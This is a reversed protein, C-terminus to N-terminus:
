STVHNIVMMPYVMLTGSETMPKDKKATPVEIGSTKEERMTDLCTFTETEDTFVKEHANKVALLTTHATKNAMIAKNTKCYSVTKPYM